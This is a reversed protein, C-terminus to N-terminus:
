KSWPPAAASTAAVPIKKGNQKIAKGTSDVIYGYKASLAADPKAGNAVKLDFDRQAKATKFALNQAAIGSNAASIALRQQELSLTAKTKYASLGLTKNELDLQDQKFQNTLKDQNATYAAKQLDSYASQTDAAKQTGAAQLAQAYASQAQNSGAQFAQVGLGKSTIPALRALNTYALGQKDLTAPAAYSGSGYLANLADSAGASSGIPSSGPAVTQLQQNTQQEAQSQAHAFADSYGQGFAQSRNAAGTYDGKVQDALGGQLQALGGYAAQQAQAQQLASAKAQDAAGQRAAYM